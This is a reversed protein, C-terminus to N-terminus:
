FYQGYKMLWRPLSGVIGYRNKVEECNVYKRPDDEGDREMLRKILDIRGSCQLFSIKIGQMNIENRLRMVTNLLKRYNRRYIIEDTLELDTERGSNAKNKLIRKDDIDYHIIHDNKEYEYQHTAKTAYNYLEKSVDLTRGTCLHVIINDDVVKFDDLTLNHFEEYKKGCIGEFIGLILFADGYVLGDAISLVQERTLILSNVVDQDLCEMIMETTIESFENTIEASINNICWEAYKEFRYNRVMVADLSYANLSKYYDLVEAQSFYRIDKGLKEEAYECADFERQAIVRVADNELTDMYRTKEETNYM